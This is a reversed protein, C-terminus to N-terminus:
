LLRVYFQGSYKRFKKLHMCYAGKGAGQRLAKMLRQERWEGSRRPLMLSGNGLAHLKLSLENLKLAPESHSM